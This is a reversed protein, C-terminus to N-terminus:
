TAAFRTLDSMVRNVQIAYGEPSSKSALTVVGVVLGQADIVPGGSNGPSITSDDLVLMNMYDASTPTLGASTDGTVPVDAAIRTIREHIIDAHGTAHSSAIAVVPDPFDGLTGTFPRLPAGPFGDQSRILAIDLNLDVGVVTGVHSTGDRGRIRVALYGQVVHANTVFDGKADFLWGTGLGEDTKGLAEITVTRSLLARAIDDLSPSASPAVVRVAPPEPPHVVGPGATRNVTVLFAVVGALVVAGASLLARLPQTSTTPRRQSVPRM